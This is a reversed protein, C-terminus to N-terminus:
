GCVNCAKRCFENMYDPNIDCESPELGAFFECDKDDNTCSPDDVDDEVEATDGRADALCGKGDALCTGDLQSLVLVPFLTLFLLSLLRISSSTM